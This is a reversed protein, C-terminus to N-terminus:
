PDAGVPLSKVLIVYRSQTTLSVRRRKGATQNCPRTALSSTSISPHNKGLPVFTKKLSHTVWRASSYKESGNRKAGSRKAGTLEKTCLESAYIGHPMPGRAQMPAPNAVSSALTTSEM